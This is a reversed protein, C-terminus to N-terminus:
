LRLITGNNFLIEDEDHTVMIVLKNEAKIKIYEIVNKKTEDDLGKLPEDLILIESDALMARVIAVRRRMGGSLKIVPKHLDKGLGVMALEDAIINKDMNTVLRVNTISNFDECLRDEQFVTAINRGQIGKINGSDFNELGMLINLLTTKGGGSEGMIYNFKKDMFVVNINEIISKENFKKCLNEIVIDM